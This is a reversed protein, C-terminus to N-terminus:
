EIPWQPICEDIEQMLRITERLAVVVKRYHELDDNSLMRGRRDKLWKELVQYGGIHFEWVVPEVGEFYQKKNIWVRGHKEDYKPYGKAVEDGDPVPYSPYGTKGEFAWDAIIHLGALEAGRKALEKFLERDSTLPIRAFDVRLFEAYRERYTPSHLIAYTYELVDRAGLTGALDGRDQSVFRLSLRQELARVFDESLNARRTKRPPLLLDSGEQVEYVYLPIVQTNRDHSGAKYEVLCDAVQAHTFAGATVRRTTVLAINPALLHAMVERRTEAVVEQMYCTYRFDFPRYLFRRVSETARQLTLVRRARAFDWHSTTCLRYKERLVAESKSTDLFDAIKEMVEEATFGVAFRDHRTAFGAGFVPLRRRGRTGAAFAENVPVARDWEDEHRRDTPVFRHRPGRLAVPSFRTTGIDSDSLVQYKGERDGWVDAYHVAKAGAGNPHKVLLTVGVGQQIDFVNEDPGGHPPKERKRVNGHLNVEYAESFTRALCARMDRFLPGDLWSNDSIYSVIGKGTREIRWQAFRFFKVYDNSLAQIQTEEARVTAKYSDMLSTIWQGRNASIKSYPPNGLVVMIPKHRKIEAAANAEEAIFQAFLLESKKAAEELTNTLYIHLRDGRSLDYRLDQLQIGLKMHAIAYPAVMIEFGFLRPLLKQRVYSPWMGRDNRQLFRQHILDIVAYLFTGTGCAPDLILVDPDALGEPRGFKERLLWDVSRVIYSVVPQPTYYVGRVKRLKPDYAALFTEYFHVVPDERGERRGFDEAIATMDAHRLLEALDDVAWAIREDLNVGAIEDFLKQLFPNTKPLAWAAHERSFQKPDKTHYRAAFLGYAITQAYMDAFQQPTLDPLLVQKFAELQGHLQGGTAEQQFTGTILERILKARGAMREALVKAEGIPEPPHSVFQELLEGVAEVGETSSRLKGDPTQTALTASDRLQGDTYWRFELYDTLILNRQAALYRELQESKQGEDLNAGIDKTEVWGITLADRKVVLDPAGAEVRKPENVVNLGTGLAEVLAQLAPRHTHETADRTSLSNRLRKLYANLPM